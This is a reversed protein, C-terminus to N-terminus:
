NVKGDFIEAADAQPTGLLVMAEIISDRAAQPSKGKKLEELYIAKCAANYSGQSNGMAMNLANIAKATANLHKREARPAAVSNAKREVKAATKQEKTREENLQQRVEKNKTHVWISVQACHEQLTRLFQMQTDFDMHEIFPVTDTLTRYLNSLDLKAALTNKSDELRLCRAHKIPLEKELCLNSERATTAHGCAACLRCTHCLKFGLDKSEQGLPKNCKICSSIQDESEIMKQENRKRLLHTNHAAVVRYQADASLFNWEARLVIANLTNM